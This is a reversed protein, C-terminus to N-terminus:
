RILNVSGAIYDGSSDDCRLIYYYVGAPLIKGSTTTGKWDNLYPKAEYVKFGHEDYITVGCQPLSEANKVVWTDNQTDVLDPSLINSAVLSNLANDQIVALQLTGEGVCGNADKGKVKYMTSILPTAIPNAILANSLDTAPTWTYDLLGSANLQSTEGARISTPSASVVVTPGNFKVIPKTATIKCTGFMVEISADGGTKYYSFSTTKGNSWLYSDFAGAVELKLSDTPCFSYIGNANTITLAPATQVAIGKQKSATCGATGYLITLMPNFTQSTSYAHTANKTTATSADGFAWSYQVDLGTPDSDIVSQDTFDLVQGICATAPATFDVVPNKAIRVKKSSTQLVPCTPNAISRLKVLYSGSVSAVFTASTAGSIDGTTQEAWQFTYGSPSPSISYQKTQGECIIESGIYFVSADPIVVADVIVSATQTKCSGVMIDVSYKGAQTAQFNPSSVSRGMMSFANPGTWIYNTAGVDNVSLNLTGGICVPTVPVPTAAGLPAGAVVTISVPTSTKSCTGNTLTVTYLGTATADIFTNSGPAGLSIGDKFWEYTSGISTSATIRQTVGSCITIPGAPSLTPLVCNLNKFVSIKSAPVGLNNDDISTFTIDPRGDIDADAIRVHRNIFTTSLTQMQFSMNGSTSQNNLITVAKQTISAVVIDAKGDGDMDGFDIGWPRANAAISVPTAFQITSTTSQNPFIFVSSALLGTAALDLKSDGDLDGIKLNSITTSAVIELSPTLKITGPTSQNKLVFIKGSPSLFESTIVEPLADGDLDDIAIGDTVSTSNVTVIAPTGMQISAISSQNPVVFIRNFAHDTVVLDPKGDLDLDRIGIMSLKGGSLSVSIPAAFSISGITSNNRFIFVRPGNLESVLIEPKADGNLDAASVHLTKVAPTLTSKTFSVTGANSTNLFVAINTSNDNATAVDQKGDGDFDALALDYLGSESNFDNQSSIQTAIFPNTGGFSVFFPKKSYGSLGNTTNLVGVHDFTAGAPVPVEILQDTITQPSANVNGFIVKIAAPNTGFNIGQITLTEQARASKKDVANVYPSQAFLKTFGFIGLFLFFRTVQMSNVRYKIMM